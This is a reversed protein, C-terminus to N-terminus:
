SVYFESNSKDEQPAIKEWKNQKFLISLLSIFVVTNESSGIM